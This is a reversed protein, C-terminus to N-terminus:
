PTFDFSEVIAQAATVDAQPTGEAISVMTVVRTGDVDVIYLHWRSNPGQAYFGKPFVFYSGQTEGPEKDCTSLVDEGPLQLELEQGRFRGFTVPTAPSSTYSKNAKLATVLDDVSPGVVVDGTEAKGTGNVDWHCADRYLGDPSMFGLLVGGNSGAPSTLASNGPYGIWSAPIEAVVSLSSPSQFPKIRYRGATLPGDPLAAPGTAAPTGTPTATPTTTPNATAAPGGVSSTSGPLLNYGIIAVLIVAALAAAAKLSTNMSLRRDLRWAPRQPQRRIRQAVVDVVRDPMERPGEILWQDLLFSLQQDDTM